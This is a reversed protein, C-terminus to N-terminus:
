QGLAYTAIRLGIALPLLKRFNEAVALNHEVAIPTAALEDDESLMPIREIIEHLIQALKITALFGYDHDVAPHVALLALCCFIGKAVIRVRFNEDSGIGGAFADVQLARVEHCVIVQRPVRVADFLAESADVPDALCFDAMEPIEEREVRAFAVDESLEELFQCTLAFRETISDKVDESHNEM